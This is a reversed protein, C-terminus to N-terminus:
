RRVFSLLAPLLVITATLCTAIGLFLVTGISAISPFSGILALSGFGIITTLASLFVAKGTYLYVTELDKEVRFRHVIHIGFDIGMGIVLPIVAINILNVKLGLLPYIGLMWIMGALLPVAALIAYRFSRFTIVMVLFVVVFIFLAAKKSGSEVDESWSVLIPVWGSVKPSVEAMRQNFRLMGEKDITASKVPYAFVLNRSGGEELFQKAYQEPLDEITISRDVQSMAEVIGDMEAAFRPDLNTIARASERPNDEIHQIVKQFVEAGPEGVEAGFIERIMQNRKVVIKNNEGLGAVSLDGIEIVNWELRQIEYALEEMREPSYSYDPDFRSGMDRIRRIEALRAMQESDSPIFRAVSSVEAILSEKELAEQLERAEEVSDAVAMASFINIDFKDLVKYYTKISTMHGPELKMMDYEMRNLFAAAFLGGTVILGAVLTLWKHHFTTKGIRSLFRYEIKPLRSKAPDQKVFWLLLSPLIFFLAIFCCIIGMGALVGFEALAKSGTAAMVFFGIATTLAALFTGMGARVYTNRLAEKPQLGSARYTTYNTVLQIGYDIGLGILMVAMFSTLMNIEKFTVGLLGYTYLIGFILVILAFLVSRIPNFSFIFLLLIVVLAVLAPVLLDFGMAEQEDAGIAVDGGYALELDPYRNQIDTRIKKIENTMAVMKPIEDISFNPLISFLLMSNDPSFGYLDGYLFTQALERGTDDAGAEAPNDLYGRLLVFFAELQNLMAVAENEQRRTSIEKEAEEGTYTREFSDNLSTLFPLLNLEAFTDRSRELDEAKQLMLGWDTVFERDMKLNITKVYQMAEPSSRVAAAFAEAAEAMRAKDRGEVTIMLSMGSNFAEDIEHISQVQPDDFPLMDEMQTTVRINQAAILSLVLLVVAVIPIIKHYRIVFNAIGGMIRQELKM